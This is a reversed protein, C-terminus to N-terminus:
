KWVRVYDITETAPMPTLATPANVGIGVTQSLAVLFPRGGISVPPVMSLCTRGDYQVTINSPSWVVAYTHFGSEDGAVACNYNTYGTLATYSHVTPIVLTPHISYHEAIDIETPGSLITGNRANAPYLWLAGQIGAKGGNSAAFKARVEFRGYQQAFTRTYVSGGIAATRFGGTPSACTFAPTRRVTLYLHGGSVQVTQPSDVVCEAGSHWGYQATTQVMWTKRNIGPATFEDDLTCTWTGGGPRASPREGGCSPAVAGVGTSPVVVIGAALVCASVAALRGLMRMSLSRGV